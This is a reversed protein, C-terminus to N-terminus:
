DVVFLIIMDEELNNTVIDQAKEFSIEFDNAIETLKRKPM